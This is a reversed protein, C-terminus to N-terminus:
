PKLAPMDSGWVGYVPTPPVGPMADMALMPMIGPMPMCPPSPCAWSIWESVAASCCTRGCSCPWAPPASWPLRSPNPRPNPIPRPMCCCCCCCCAPWNPYPMGGVATESGMAPMPWKGPAVGPVGPPGILVPGEGVGTGPLAAICGSGM